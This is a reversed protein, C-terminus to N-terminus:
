HLTHRKCDNEPKTCWNGRGWLRALALKLTGYSALAAKRNVLASGSPCKVKPVVVSQTLGRQGEDTGREEM